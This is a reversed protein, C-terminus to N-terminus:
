KSVDAGLYLQRFRCEPVRVRVLTGAKLSSADIYKLADWLSGTAVVPPEDPVRPEPKRAYLATLHDNLANDSRM